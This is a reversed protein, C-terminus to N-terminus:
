TAVPRRLEYGDGRHTVILLALDEFKLLKRLNCIIVDLSKGTTEANGDHREIEDLLADKSVCKGFRDALKRMICAQSRSLKVSKGGMILTNGNIELSGPKSTDPVAEGDDSVVAHSGPRAWDPLTIFMTGAETIYDVGDKHAELTVGPPVAFRIIAMSRMFAVTFHGKPEPRIALKGDDDGTGLLVAVPQKAKIGLREAMAVPMALMMSSNRNGVTLALRVSEAKTKKRNTLEVWM